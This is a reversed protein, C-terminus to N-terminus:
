FTPAWLQTLVMQDVIITVRASAARIISDSHRRSGLYGIDAQYASALEVILAWLTEFPKCFDKEAINM